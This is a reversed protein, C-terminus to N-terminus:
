KSYFLSSGITAGKFNLENSTLTGTKDALIYKIKGLDEHLNVSICRCRKFYTESYM